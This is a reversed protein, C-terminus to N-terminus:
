SQQDADALAAVGPGAPTPFPLDGRNRVSILIQEGPSVRLSSVLDDKKRLARRLIYASAAVALWTWDGALGRRVAARLLRRLLADV